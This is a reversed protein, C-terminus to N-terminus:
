RGFINLKSHFHLGHKMVKESQDLWEALSLSATTRVDYQGMYQWESKRLDRTFVRKLGVDVPVEEATSFFLGCGGPTQPAFPHYDLKLYMFDNMGHKELKEQAIVPLTAQSSGGYEASMFNRTVMHNIEARSLDIDYPELGIPELRKLLVATGLTMDAIQKKGKPQLSM